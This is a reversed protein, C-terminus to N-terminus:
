ETMMKMKWTRQGSKFSVYDKGIDTVSVGEIMGGARVIVGNIVALRSEPVESWVLAQLKFEPDEVSPGEEQTLSPKAPVTSPKEKELAVKSPSNRERAYAPEPSAPESRKRRDEPIAEKPMTGQKETESLKAPATSAKSILFPMYQFTVWLAIALTLAPLLLLLLKQSFRSKGYRSQIAKKADIKRRLSPQAENSPVSESEVKRLANLISSV